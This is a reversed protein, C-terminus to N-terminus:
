RSRQGCSSLAFQLYGSHKCRNRGVVGMVSNTGNSGGILFGGAEHRRTFAMGRPIRALSSKAGLWSDGNWFLPGRPTLAFCRGDTDWAASQIVLEDHPRHKVIWQWGATDSAPSLQQITQLLRRNSTPPAPRDNLWPIIANVLADASQPRHEVSLATGWALAADIARCADPRERFEPCLVPCELVSKRAKSRM